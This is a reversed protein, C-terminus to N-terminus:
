RWATLPRLGETAASRTIQHQSSYKILSHATPNERTQPFINQFYKCRFVHPWSLYCHDYSYEAQYQSSALAKYQFLQSGFFFNNSQFNCYSKITEQPIHETCCRTQNQEREWVYSWLRTLNVIKPTNRMQARSYILQDRYKLRGKMSM